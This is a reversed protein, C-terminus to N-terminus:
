GVTVVVEGSVEPITPHIGWGLLQPSQGGSDGRPKRGQGRSVSWMRDNTSISTCVHISADASTYVDIFQAHPRSGKQVCYAICHRQRAHCWLTYVPFSGDGLPVFMTFLQLYLNPVVKILRLTLICNLRQNCCNSTAQVTGSDGADALGRYFSCPTTSSDRRQDTTHQEGCFRWTIPIQTRM